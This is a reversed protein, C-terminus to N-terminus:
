KIAEYFQSGGEKDCGGNLAREDRRATTGWMVSAMWSHTSRTAWFGTFSLMLGCTHMMSSPPVTPSM